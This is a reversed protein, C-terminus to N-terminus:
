APEGERRVGYSGHFDGDYDLRPDGALDIVRHPGPAGLKRTASGGDCCRGIGWTGHRKWARHNHGYLLADVNGRGRLVEGLEPSDKLEHLPLPDFPHHHLYVVRHGCARVDDRGLLADLRQLQARGLEGQAFLRDYWHLEEAMSDLGILAIGDVADLKPYTVGPDGFFAQKFRPVFKKHGLDGTGYDHNGPAALVGFGAAELRDVGDRVPDYAGPANADEVLDGTVVVVYESAPRVGAIIGDILREYAEGLDQYGVHTDSLHIIKPM